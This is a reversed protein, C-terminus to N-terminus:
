PWSRCTCQRSQKRNGSKLVDRVSLSLAYLRSRLDPQPAADEKSPLRARTKRFHSVQHRSETQTINNGNGRFGPWHKLFHIMIKPKHRSSVFQKLHRLCLTEGSAPGAVAKEGGGPSPVSRGARILKFKNRNLDQNRNLVQAAAMERHRDRSPVITTLINGLHKDRNM